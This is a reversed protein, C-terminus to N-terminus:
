LFILHWLWFNDKKVGQLHKWIHFNKEKKKHNSCVLLRSILIWLKANNWILALITPHYGARMHHSQDTQALVELGFIDGSHLLWFSFISMNLFKNYSWHSDYLVFRKKILRIVSAKLVFLGFIIVGMLANCMDLVQSIIGFEREVQEPIVVTIGEIIWNLGM